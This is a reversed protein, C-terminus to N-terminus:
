NCITQPKKIQNLLVTINSNIKFTKKRQLIKQNNPSNFVALISSSSKMIKEFKDKQTTIIIEKISKKTNELLKKKEDNNFVFIKLPIINM